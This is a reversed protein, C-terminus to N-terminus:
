RFFEADFLNRHIEIESIHEQQFKLSTYMKNLFAKVYYIIELNKM